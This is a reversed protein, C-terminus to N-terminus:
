RAAAAFNRRSKRRKAFQHHRNGHAGHRPRQNPSKHQSRGLPRNSPHRGNPGATPAAHYPHDACVEISKRVLREIARLAGRESNDCFSLAVGDAGARGTRGIRHVYTEPDVPLDYNIVHSVADVDIGRAALDTAVLVRLTGRRFQQLARERASQSKNGHIADATVGARTLQHAVKDAGHKTRTFVLVRSFNGARLLDNLLARKNTRDVFLVRQDIRDVTSAPPAVTVRVPDSLLSHALGAISPPMTASFFLTQRNPPLKAIIKKLDPLFGLDLMRDAEDLVFIELRDLRVYGQQMLDLLRGPTAVLLHVGRALARVQPQQRVGGFVVTQRFHVHRGYTAISQGIQAALERTPSLILARPAGPEAPRRVADIRQLIPLAFAATKGTGTQACGLLDRRAIVHPISQSQIPTPVQYGESAVARLIPEALGLERFSLEPDKYLFEWSRFLRLACQAANLFAM